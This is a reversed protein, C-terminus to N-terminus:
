LKAPPIARLQVYKSSLGQPFHGTLLHRSDSIIEERKHDSPGTVLSALYGHYAGGMVNHPLHDRDRALGWILLCGTHTYVPVTLVVFVDHIDTGASKRFHLICLLSLQRTRAPYNDCVNGRCYLASFSVEKDSTTSTGSFGCFTESGWRGDWKM